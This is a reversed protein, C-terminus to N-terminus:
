PGIYLRFGYGSPTPDATVVTCGGVGMSLETNDAFWPKYSHGSGNAHWVGMFAICSPNYSDHFLGQEGFLYDTLVGPTKAMTYAGEEFKTPDYGDVSGALGALRGFTYTLKDDKYATLKPNGTAYSVLTMSGDSSQRCTTDYGNQHVFCMKLNKQGAAKGLAEVFALSVAASGTGGGWARDVTSAKADWKGSATHQWGSVVYDTTNPMDDGTSDYYNGVLTWGGNKMDCFLNAAAIPGSGDPDIPYIGDASTADATLFAKCSPKPSVCTGAKCLGGDLGCNSATTLGTGQANCIGALNGLCTPANPTCVAKFALPVAKLAADNGWCVVSGGTSLACATSVGEQERTLEVQDYSGAPVAQVIAAESGWCSMAGQTSVACCSSGPQCVADTFTGSPPAGADTALGWLKLAGNKTVGAARQHRVDVVAWGEPAAPINLQGADNCGWCKLKGDKQIACTSSTGASVATFQGAQAVYQGSANCGAGCNGGWCSMSSDLKVGCAGWVGVSVSQLQQAPMATVGCGDPNTGFLKATNASDIAVTVGHNVSVDKWGTSTITPAGTGWCAISGISDLACCVNYDGCVLKKIGNRNCNAPCADGNATNGDDCAEGGEVVGNGCVHVVCVGALCVNGGNANCVSGDALNVSSCGTKTDCSDKTCPNGDNCSAASGAVCKGAVCSDGLTCANGDSCALLGAPAASQCGLQSHCWDQTCANGDDCVQKVVTCAGAACIEDSTCVDNDPCLATNNVHVCGKAGNCGDTTCVNGDDCGQGVGGQCQGGQCKDGLTCANGDDCVATNAQYVCGKGALCTDDTCVSDDQCVMPSGGV